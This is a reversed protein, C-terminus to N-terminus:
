MLQPDRHTGLPRALSWAPTVPTVLASSKRSSVSLVSMSISPICEQCMCCTYAPIFISREDKGGEAKERGKQVM